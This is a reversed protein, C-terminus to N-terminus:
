AVFITLTTCLQSKVSIHRTPQNLLLVATASQGMFVLNNPKKFVRGRQNNVIYLAFSFSLYWLNSETSDLIKNRILLATDKLSKYLQRKNATINPLM